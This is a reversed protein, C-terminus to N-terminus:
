KVSNLVKNVEEPNKWDMYEVHEFVIEGKTNMVFLTPLTYIDIDHMSGELKHMPFPVDFATTFKEVIQPTDDTLGIVEINHEKLLKYQAVIEPIEKHCTGCWGAYFVVMVNKDLFSDLSDLGSPTQFVVSRETINPAIRYRKYMFVAVVIAVVLLLINLTRRSRM